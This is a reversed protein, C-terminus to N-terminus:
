KKNIEEIINKFYKIDNEKGDSGVRPEMLFEGEKGVVFATPTGQVYEILKMLYEEDAIMNTFDLELTEVLEKVSDERVTEINDVSIGLVNVNKDKYEDYIGNLAELEEICPGCTSQWISVITIDYDELVESSVMNGELDELNFSPLKIAAIDEIDVGENQETNKDNNTSDLNTDKEEDKSSCGNVVLSIILVASLLIVWKIKRDM